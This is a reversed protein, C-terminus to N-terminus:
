ARATKKADRRRDASPPAYGSVEVTYNAIANVLIEPNYPRRFVTTFGIELLDKPMRDEGAIAFLALRSTTQHRRCAAVLDRAAKMGVSSDVLGCSMARPDAAMIGFECLSEAVVVQTEIKECHRTMVDRDRWDCGLLILRLPLMGIQPIVIKALRAYNMLSERSIRRDGAMLKRGTLEGRDFMQQVTTYSVGLMRAVMKTGYYLAGDITEPKITIKRM